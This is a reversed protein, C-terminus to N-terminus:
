PRRALWLAGATAALAMGALATIAALGARATLWAIPDRGRARADFRGHAGPDGPVPAFLNSPRAPDHPESTIQAAFGHRALYRDAYGPALTQGAVAKITPWAVFIERRPHRAAHFIADAAIEPQFIPPVPQAEYPLRNECWSFQPTNIAPLHVCTLAVSSGDHLLESRLADTFGVLRAGAAAFRRATARGVGATSGTIVVVLDHAPTPM